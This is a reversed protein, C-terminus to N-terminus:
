ARTGFTKKFDASNRRLRFWNEFIDPSGLWITLWEAIENNMAKESANLKSDLAAASVKKKAALADERLLRIGESDGTAVFKRRLNEINRLTRRTRALNTVDILNRFEAEYPVSDFSKVWLAMIESHRLAAGEDALIRAIRMPSEVASLGFRAGVAERIAEIERAGVSECDLKEWVEIVLDIKTRSTWM